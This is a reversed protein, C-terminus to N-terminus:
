PNGQLNRNAVNSNFNSWWTAWGRKEWSWGKVTPLFIHSSHVWNLSERQWWCERASVWHRPPRRMGLLQPLVARARTPSPHLQTNLLMASSLSHSSSSTLRAFSAKFLTRKVVGKLMLASYGEKQEMSGRNSPQDLLRMNYVPPKVM